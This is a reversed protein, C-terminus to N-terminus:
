ADARLVSGGDRRRGQGRTAAAGVVVCAAAAVLLALVGPAGVRLRLAPGVPARPDLGLAGLRALLLVAVAAALAATAVIGALELLHARRTRRRGLGMRALMLDDVRSRAASRDAFLGLGVVALGATAAGLALLYGLSRLAAVFDPLQRVAADTTVAMPTVGHAALVSDLARMSRSWVETRFQSDGSQGPRPAYRPDQAGLHAFFADAPVVLMAQSSPDIGPFTPLVDSLRLPITWTGGSSAISARDGARLEPATSSTTRALARPDGVLVAPVVAGDDGARAASAVAAGDRGLQPLVSRATALDSGSGWSAAAGFTAPDIVLVPIDLAQGPVVGSARWVVTSGGAVPPQGVPPLQDRPLPTSFGPDVPEPAVPATPDLQWSGQIRAIDAAGSLAAVRDETTARVASAATVAYLLMGLGTALLTVVLVREAGPVAVRRAALWLTPARMGPRGPATLRAAVALVARGALAGTAAV